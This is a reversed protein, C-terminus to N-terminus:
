TPVAMNYLTDVAIKRQGDDGSLYVYRRGSSAVTPHLIKSPYHKDGVVRKSVRVQKDDSIKYEEYGPIAHWQGSVYIDDYLKDIDNNELLYQGGEDLDFSMKYENLRSVVTKQYWSNVNGLKNVRIFNLNRLITIYKRITRSEMGLWRSLSSQSLKFAGSSDSYVKAYCLVGLAVIREEYTDFKKAIIRAERDSVPVPMQGLLQMDGSIVKDILPNMAVTIFFDNEKAWEILRERIEERTTVGNHYYWKALLLCIRYETDRHLGEGALYRKVDTLENIM